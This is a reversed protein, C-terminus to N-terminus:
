LRGGRWLSWNQLHKRCCQWPNEDSCSLAAKEREIKLGPEWGGCASCCAACPTARLKSTGLGVLLPTALPARGRQKELNTNGEMGETPQKADEQSPACQGEGAPSCRQRCVRGKSGAIM